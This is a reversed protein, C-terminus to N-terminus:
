FLKETSTLNLQGKSDYTWTQMNVELTKIERHASRELYRHLWTQFETYQSEDNTISELIPRIREYKEGLKEKFFTQTPDIDDNKKMKDYYFISGTVIHRNADLLEQTYNFTEGNLRIEIVQQTARIEEKESFMGWIFFPTIQHGMFTLLLTTSIFFVVVWFLSKSHRYLRYLYTNKM